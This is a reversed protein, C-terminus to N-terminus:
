LPGSHGVLFFPAWYFPHAFAESNLLSLQALRLAEDKREGSRLVRYFREMMRTSSVDAVPWHTLLLSAAGSALIARMLGLIEDGGGVVTRGTDCASFTVLSATLRLAFLDLTSLRGDDLALGSFLPADPDFEAHAACHILRKGAAQALFASRTAKDDLLPETGWASSLTVAEDLV